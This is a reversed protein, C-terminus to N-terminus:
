FASFDVAWFLFACFVVFSLSFGLITCAVTGLLGLESKSQTFAVGASSILCVAFWAFHISASPYPLGLMVASSESQFGLCVYVLSVLMLISLLNRIRNKM